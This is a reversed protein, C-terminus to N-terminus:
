NQEMWAFAKNLGVLSIKFQPSMLSRPHRVAMTGDGYTIFTYADEGLKIVVQSPGSSEADFKKLAALIKRM